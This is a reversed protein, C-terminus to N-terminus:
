FVLIRIHFSSIGGLFLSNPNRMEWMGTRWCKQANKEDVFDKQNPKSGMVWCKIWKIGQLIAFEEQLAWSSHHNKERFRNFFFFFPFDIQITWLSLLKTITWNFMESSFHIKGAIGEGRHGTPPPFKPIGPQNKHGWATDSCYDQIGELIGFKPQFFGFIGDLFGKWSGLTSWAGELVSSKTLLQNIMLKNPAKQKTKQHFTSKKKGPATPATSQKGGLTHGPFGDSTPSPSSFMQSSFQHEFTSKTSGRLPWPLFSDWGSPNQESSPPSFCSQTHLPAMGVQLFFKFEGQLSNKLQLLKLPIEGGMSDPLGPIIQLSNFGLPANWPHM